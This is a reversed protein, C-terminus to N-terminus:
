MSANSSVAGSPAFFYPGSAPAAPPMARRPKSTKRIEAKRSSSRLRSMRARVGYGHPRNWTRVFREQYACIERVLRCPAREDVFGTLTILVAEACVEVNNVVFGEVAGLRGVKGSGRFRGAM